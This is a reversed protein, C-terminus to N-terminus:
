KDSWGIIKLVEAVVNDIGITGDVRKLIGKKGYYDIM